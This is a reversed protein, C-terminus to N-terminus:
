DTRVQAAQILDQKLNWLRESLSVHYIHPNILRKVGPDLHDLDNQRVGRIEEISPFDMVVKGEQLVPVQLPEIKSLQGPLFTRMMSHESPHHLVLAQDIQPTEDALTSLDATAKERRDYLRWSRKRGPNLTKIPSESIKIAPEWKGDMELAVLKYVGDLAPDGASTILRTGVGYTLRKILREPDVGYRPAEQQIQTLIQWIILEDLQNSWVIQTEPFGAEDLMKAAHITLYALDGSDLRIGIPRHGKRKLEDFVKIANPVGSELTNITDVLLLCDDPYIEAYARFAGLEGEGLAMFAQIMSHAQTGKPAYGLMASVGTNSTFDAGGILAARAGANAGLDQARRMGFELVPQGHGSERIRAAKTAILTQYNLQNLLATELMQAMALPGQVITLPINPHVVRGEPIAAISIGDFHGCSRLWELFDDAFVRTGLRNTMGRLYDIEADGFRVSQIWEVLWELGANICYGAKHQGYDPYSRFYHEFLGKREHIGTRFYLQAMTLEYFDMFLIGEALSRKINAM